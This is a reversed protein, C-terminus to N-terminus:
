QRNIASELVESTLLYVQSKEEPELTGIIVNAVYRGMTDTTEDISIWIHKNQVESRIRNMVGLYVADVYNKRLTSECPIHEKTYKELFAKLSPNELKWLPINSDMLAKCLDLSFQSQRQSIVDFNKLLCTKKDGSNKLANQKHKTTSLHQTVFYKKRFESQYQLSQL